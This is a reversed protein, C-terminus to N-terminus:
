RRGVERWGKMERFQIEVKRQVRKETGTWEGGYWSGGGGEMEGKESRM